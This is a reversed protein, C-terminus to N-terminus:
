HIELKEKNKVDAAGDLKCHGETGNYFCFNVYIREIFNTLCNM